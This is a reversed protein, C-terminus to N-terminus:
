PKQQVPIEGNVLPITNQFIRPDYTKLDEYSWAFIYKYVQFLKVFERTEENTCTVGLNLMKPDESTGINIRKIEQVKRKSAEESM